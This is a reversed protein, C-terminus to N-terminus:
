VMKIKQKEMNFNIYDSVMENIIKHIEDPFHKKCNADINYIYLYKGYKEVQKDHILNKLQKEFKICINNEDYIYSNLYKKYKEMNKFKFFNERLEDEDMEIINSEKAQILFLKLM